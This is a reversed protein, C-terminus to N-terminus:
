IIAGLVRLQVNTLENYKFVCSCLNRHVTTHPGHLKLTDANNSWVCSERLNHHNDSIRQINGTAGAAPALFAARQSRICPKSLFWGNVIWLKNKESKLNTPVISRELRLGTFIWHFHKEDSDPSLFKSIVGCASIDEDWVSAVQLPHLRGPLGSSADRTTQLAKRGAKSQVWNKPAIQLSKWSFILVIQGLSNDIGLHRHELVIATPFSWSLGPSLWHQQRGPRPHIALGEAEHSRVCDLM